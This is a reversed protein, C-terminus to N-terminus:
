RRGWMGLVLVPVARRVRKKRDLRGREESREKEREQQEKTEDFRLPVDLLVM